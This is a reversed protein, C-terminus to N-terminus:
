TCPSSFAIGPADGAWRDRGLPEWLRECVERRLAAVDGTVLGPWLQVGGAGATVITANPTSVALSSTVPLAFSRGVPQSTAVEWLQVTGEDNTVLMRSDPTFAVSWEDGQNGNGSLKLKSRSQRRTAVNWIFASGTNTLSGQDADTIAALKRGDPAFAIDEVHAYAASLLAGQRPHAGSEDKGLRWVVVENGAAPAGSTCVHGVVKKGGRGHHTTFCSNPADHALGNVAALERGDPSFTPDRLLTEGAGMGAGNALPAATLTAVRRGSRISILQVTRAGNAVALTRLDPSIAATIRRSSVPKTTTVRDFGPLKWTTTNGRDGAAVLEDGGPSFALAVVPGDTPLVALQAGDSSSFVRVAGDSYGAAVMQRDPSTAITSPGRPGLVAPGLPRWLMVDGNHLGIAVERGGLGVAAVPNAPGNSGAGPNSAPVRVRATVARGRWVTVTGDTDSAALLSGSPNYAVSPTANSTHHTGLDKGGGALSRIAIEGFQGIATAHGNPSLALSDVEGGSDNTYDVAPAAPRRRSLNWVFLSNVSGGVAVVLERDDPTFAVGVVGPTFSSTGYTGHYGLERPTLTLPGSGHGAGLSFLRVHQDGGGAALRDGSASFALSSVAVRRGLSLRDISRDGDRNWITVQGDSSGVALLDRKADFAMSEIAGDRGRLQAILRGTAADRLQVDGDQLGTAFSRGGPAFVISRVAGGGLAVVRTVGNALQPDLQALLQNRASYPAASLLRYPEVAALSLQLAAQPDGQAISQADAALALSRSTTAERRAASRQGIAVVALAAVIGAVVLLVGAILAVIKLRRIEARHAQERQLEERRKSIWPVLFETTIEYLDLDRRRERRVLRSQSLRELAQELVASTQRGENERVRQFLDAASIVNRTGADTIMQALLAIAAGRLEQPMEDIAEGLYDELLGQVGRQALLGEPSDSRWLRLCVTQVESLSVEGTGFRDSLAEILKERVTRPLPHEFHDPYTDFPGSIITPLADLSPPALRLAQDVLEPCDALLEKLKGLYDDRFALLLKVRPPGHLLEAILEAIRGQLQQAQPTNFLTVLEEFQDFIVFPRRGDPGGDLYEAFGSLSLTIRAEPDGGDSSGSLAPSGDPDVSASWPEIVLEADERPQVRVRVPAFGREILGPMLGANLLSSKGAGSDGYLLV